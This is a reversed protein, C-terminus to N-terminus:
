PSYREAVQGTDGINLSLKAMDLDGILLDDGNLGLMTDEGNTGTM